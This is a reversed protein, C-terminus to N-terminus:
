GGVEQGGGGGVRPPAEGPRRVKRPKSQQWYKRSLDLLGGIILRAFHKCIPNLPWLLRRVQNPGMGVRGFRTVAEM